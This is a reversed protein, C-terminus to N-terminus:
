PGLTIATLVINGSGAAKLTLTNEGPRLQPETMAPFRSLLDGNSDFVRITGDAWYEAYDGTKMAAPIAISRSGASIEVDKLTSDREELAEVLGIRCRVGSGKPYRMWRLNVAVVNGYDFGAMAAKFPYNAAAPRFEALMRSTGPEALTVTKPGSFDLDVYYDRYGGGGAQLQINLVPTESSGTALGEVNLRVALARHKTLDLTKGPTRGDAARPGVIFAGRQDQVERTFEFHQVLSGAMAAKADPPQIEVPSEARLLPINSPDGVAALTPAAQLRFKLPQEGFENRLTVEGPIAVRQADYRIPHFEGPRTMHWEGAALQQRVAKPVAGSLRLQEYEGLLKLMEETRGNAKLRSLNTELSGGSDLALMRVAYYEVEDPTTAPHDPADQLFSWWGLDAPLFNYHYSWWADAIKHHDLYERTAVASGDDCTGRSFIHWTWDTMGSGQVLLERKSKEWIQAQQTGVWYWGPGNASNIEGGDFYIMDFGCRNIVDAVRDSIADKLPTKLDALYSGEREVLHYIKAGARHLAPKTGAFGRSCRLFAGGNIQGYHIIEDDIAIDNAAGYYGDEVPFGALASAAAMETVSESVDTALTAEGDKLLWPSPKPRVLPDNKGVFSTLMHLGVKLGAAHCKDIVAKLSEEGRPFNRTNIPYSGLSASWTGSYVLIYRFGGLKAYRITEDANAETLDTFLYSTRVDQSLRAWTGGLTPSPLEFDHEVKRVVELFRPTPAAIIAVREGQMSFGPYVSALLAQGAFRADVRGSLGMLCVAFEDDWRVGLLGGANALAVNLQMLRIEEIGDGHFAALEVVLCEASATIRYDADVGSTGFTVHLMGGRRDAASAPFLRGDKKVAAFPLGEPRLREKGSQKDILSSAVADPRIVLRAARTEFVFDEARAGNVAAFALALALSLKM